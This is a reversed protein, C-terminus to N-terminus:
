KESQTRSKILTIIAGAILLSIIAWKLNRFPSFLSGKPSSPDKASRQVLDSQKITFDIRDEKYETLYSFQIDARYDGVSLKPAKMFELNQEKGPGIIVNHLAIAHGVHKYGYEDQSTNYARDLQVSLDGILVKSSTNLVKIYIVPEGSPSYDYEYHEMILNSASAHIAPTDM